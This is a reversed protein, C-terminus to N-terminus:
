FQLGEDENLQPLEDTIDHWCAKVGTHIHVEPRKVPDDDLTGLRIYITSLNKFESYIPSGCHNCFYRNKNTSSPYSKLYERGNIIAFDKLNVAASTAFASGSAKRCKECHCYNIGIIDGSIQYAIKTCLCSGRLSM